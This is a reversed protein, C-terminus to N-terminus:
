SPNDGRQLQEYTRRARDAEPFGDGIKVIVPYIQEVETPLFRSIIKSAKTTPMAKLLIVVEDEENNRLRESLIAKAEDPKLATLLAVENERGSAAAGQQEDELEKARADMTRRFDQWQTALKQEAFELQNLGDRLAQERRELLLFQRARAALIQESSVQEAGVDDRDAEDTQERDIGHAV